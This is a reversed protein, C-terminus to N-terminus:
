CKLSIDGISAMREALRIEEPDFVSPDVSNGQNRTRNVERDADRPNVFEAQVSTGEPDDIMDFAVTPEIRDAYVEFLPEEVGLQLAQRQLVNLYPQLMSPDVINMQGDIVGKTKLYSLANDVSRSFPACSM